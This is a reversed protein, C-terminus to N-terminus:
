RTAKLQDFTIATAADDYGEMELDAKTRHLHREDCSQCRRHGKSGGCKTCVLTLEVVCRGCYILYDGRKGCQCCVEESKWQEEDLFPNTSQRFTQDANKMEEDADGQAVEPATQHTMKPLAALKKAADAYKSLLVPVGDPVASVAIADRDATAIKERRKEAAARAINNLYQANAMANQYRRIVDHRQERGFARARAITEESADYSLLERNAAKCLFKDGQYIILEGVKAPDWHIDVFQGVLPLMEASFFFRNLHRVGANRVLKRARRMLVLDLTREDRVVRPRWGREVHTQLMEVPSLNGLIPQPRYHYVTVIWNTIESKYQEFMLLSKPDLPKPRLKQREPNEQVSGGCYGPLHRTGDEMIRFWGEINGKSRGSYGRTHRIAIGLEDCITRVHVSRFDKGLDAHLYDFLGFIPWQSDDKPLAAQRLALGIALAGPYNGKGVPREPTMYFGVILNTCLDYLCTIWPRGIVGGPFVVNHDCPHHDAQVFKLPLEPKKRLNIFAFKDNFEREGIRFLAVVDPDIARCVKRVFDYSPGSAGSMECDRSIMAHVWSMKPRFSQLYYRQITAILQRDAVRPEGKDSRTKRLLGALGAHKYASRWNYVTQTTVNHKFAIESMAVGKNTSATIRDLDAKLESAEALDAEEAGVLSRVPSINSGTISVCPREATVKWAAHRGVFQRSSKAKLAETPSSFIPGVDDKPDGEQLLQFYRVQIEIPLSELEVERKPKGRKSKKGMRVNAGRHQLERLKEFFRSRKVALLTMLQGTSIWTM